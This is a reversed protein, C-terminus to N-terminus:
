KYSETILGNLRNIEEISPTPEPLPTPM